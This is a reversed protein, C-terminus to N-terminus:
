KFKEQLKEISIDMINHVNKLVLYELNELGSVKIGLSDEIEQLTEYWSEMKHTSSVARVVYGTDLLRIRDVFTSSFCIASNDNLQMNDM